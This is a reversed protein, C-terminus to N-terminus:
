KITDVEFSMKNGNNDEVVMIYTDTEKQKIFEVKSM